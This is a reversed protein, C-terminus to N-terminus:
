FRVEVGIGARAELPASAYSMALSSYLALGLDLKNTQIGLPSYAYEIKYQDLEFGVLVRNKLRPTKLGSPSEPPHSALTGQEIESWFKDTLTLNGPQNDFINEDQFIWNGDQDKVEVQYQYNEFCARCDQLIAGETNASLNDSCSSAVASLSPARVNLSNKAFLIKTETAPTQSIKNKLENLRLKEVLQYHEAKLSLNKKRELLYLGILLAFIFLFLIAIGIKIKSIL